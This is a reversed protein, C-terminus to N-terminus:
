SSGLILGMVLADEVPNSYYNKRVGMPEFGLKDYLARAATNSERVELTMFVAGERRVRDIVHRMLAEALGLRRLDPHVAINNVQVDDGVKWYIIYGSIRGDPKHVVVLPFSIDRNQIEGRFTELSWPNPFSLAEIELVAQLDAEMMRRVVFHGEGGSM